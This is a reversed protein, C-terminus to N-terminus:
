KKNKKEHSEYHIQFRDLASKDNKSMARVKGTPLQSMVRAERELVMTALKPDFVQSKTSQSQTDNLENHFLKEYEEWYERKQTLSNYSAEKRTLIINKPQDQETKM